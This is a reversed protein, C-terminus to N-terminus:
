KFWAAAAVPIFSGNANPYDVQGETIPSGKRETYTSTVTGSDTTGGNYTNVDLYSLVSNVVKGSADAPVNFQARKTTDHDYTVTLNYAALTAADTTTNYDGSGTVIIEYPADAYTPVATSDVLQYSLKGQPTIHYRRLRADSQYTEIITDLVSRLSSSPATIAETPTFASGGAILSTDTTSMLRKLAYDESHGANVRALAAQVAATETTTAGIIFSVQGNSNSGDFVIGTPPMVGVSGSFSAGSISGNIAGPL